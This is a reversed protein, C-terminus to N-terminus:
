VKIFKKVFYPKGNSGMGHILYIGSPLIKTPIQLTSNKLDARQKILVQGALNTIIITTADCDCQISLHNDVPNPFYKVSVKKLDDQVSLIPDLESWYSAWPRAQKIILQNDSTIKYEIDMAFAENGVADYLIAFEDHITSLYDRIEDLFNEEMILVNSPVLNSRRIVVYDDDTVPIRDLLIEEPISFLDPNTVLDEGLQTNLYFTNETQYIPDTSVGVGNAKEDTYNPHCLVGMSAIYQDVRYFDREDYARFNWMSAYVQKISKSIHGEDPHQTKSTYLGAGSFGPLDENNTSSRCRISTGEPFSEQMTQLEALMWDPMDAAKINDRLNKLMLIRTDLDSQFNPDAIMIEIDDFFGNYAMFEQYFYFPIGFGDPITGEPFGFTRMTAVNTCKAGFGDSMDFSIEELPLISTYSLNLEPIQAGDPRIEEFWDNVEEFTAERIYYEGQEVRYYIYNGLLDSISDVLLPDRIFANPVNDQIARLNVHSLPTQIFSTMIGGVRPLSNPINEYLVVDRSNPTEDLNMLRFFGFGEAVNLALYDIDAYIESEFLIPIRSNDYLNQDQEFQTQNDSLVFFSLNNKLFPMNSAILEHAKQTIDFEQLDGFTFNFAFLGLTGNNAVVTPYYVIEGKVVNSAWANIGIADGFAQHTYHTETNIFYLKPDDTEIDIIVFKAFEQDDLFPAWPIEEDAISLEKFTSMNDIMVTGDVFPIPDAFNLPSKTPPDLFEILDHVGDGDTDEPIATLYELVQYHEIPYSELSESIITTGAEGLTLSTSLEFDGTPSHRVNLIYYQNESSAVELQVQGNIDISYNLIPVEQCYSCHYFFSLALSFLIKFANM